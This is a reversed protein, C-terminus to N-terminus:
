SNNMVDDLDKTHIGDALEGEVFTNPINPRNELVPVVDTRVEIDKNGMALQQLVIAITDKMEAQNGNEDTKLRLNAKDYITKEQAALLENAVRLGGVNNTLADNEMVKNILKQRQAQMDTLLTADAADLFNNDKQEMSM